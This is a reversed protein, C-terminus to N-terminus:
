RYKRVFKTPLPPYAEDVLEAWRNSRSPLLLGGPMNYEPKRPKGPVVVWQSGSDSVTPNSPGGRLVTPDDPDPSASDSASSSAATDLLPVSDESPDVRMKDLIGALYDATQM